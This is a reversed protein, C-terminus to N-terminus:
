VILYYNSTFRNETRVYVFCYLPFFTTVFGSYIRKKKLRFIANRICITYM